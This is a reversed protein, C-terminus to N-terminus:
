PAESTRPDPQIRAALDALGVATHGSGAVTLVVADIRRDLAEIEMGQEDFRSVGLTLHYCGPLLAVDFDFGVIRESGAEASELQGNLVFSNTSYLLMGRANRLQMGFVLRELPQHFAYRVFLQAREGPKFLPPQAELGAFAFDAVEALGTGVRDERAHYGPRSQFGHGPEGRLWHLAREAPDSLDERPANSSAQMPRNAAPSATTGGHSGFVLRLYQSIAPKVDGDFLKHGQDLVIGRDCLQSLSDVSHTVFLLTCGDERIEAIRKSCKNQFYADGVGLAEDVILIDPSSCVSVAFALRMFMGSSYTKVPQDIFAGIEAFALIQDYRRDIEDHSLGLLSAKLYVNDRGTFEPNFGAGLELLAAVRGTVRVEGETPPFIGCILRLLTSKGSGNRGIIGVSEGRRVSLDIGRLAWFERFYNRRGRFVGQLLRHHPKDYIHYRKGLGVADIVVEGAQVPGPESSM